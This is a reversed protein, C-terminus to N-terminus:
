WLEYRLGVNVEHSAIGGDNGQAGTAGAGASAADWEFMDGSEIKRYKYGLEVKLNDTLDYAVGAMLAYTFRWSNIGANTSTGTLGVGGCPSGADVCYYNSSLGSWDVHTYGVGGGVFPTFGSFTGLDAYANIMLGYASYEATDTSLCGTGAPGGGCPLAASTTGNFEGNSHDLTADVRLWDNFHYGFGVGYVFDGDIDSTAFNNNTYTLTGADFTRYTASASRSIAYGIDGRLYWGSGVEVPVYEPANQLLAPLDLDAARGQALPIAALAAASVIIRSLSKM